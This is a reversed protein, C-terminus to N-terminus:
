GLFQEPGLMSAEYRSTETRLREVRQVRWLATELRNGFETSFTAGLILIFIVVLGAPLGITLVNLGALILTVFSVFFVINSVWFARALREAPWPTFIKNVM